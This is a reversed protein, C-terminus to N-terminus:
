DTWQYLTIKGYVPDALTSSQYTRVKRLHGELSVGQEAFGDVVHDTLYIKAHKYNAKDQLFVDFQFVRKHTFNADLYQMIRTEEWTYVVIAEEQKQLDYTLQYTAPLNNAYHYIHFGGVVAQVIIVILAYIRKLISDGSHFYNVWSYFLLIGVIPVIHRPKDVNQAFLAWLFYVGATILFWQPLNMKKRIVIFVILGTYLLLLWISQSALGTWIINYFILRITRHFFSDDETIAAGGWETFHGNIFSLALKLFSRWSEETMAVGLVWIFQFLLGAALYVVLRSARKHKKWDDYWLFLLAFAFPIYSLRIGLLIGFFFLPLIHTFWQGREHALQISWFYWWLVAIAAGESMPQSVTLSIFSATQIICMIILSLEAKCYRKLLLFIPVTASLITLINFVSLAKAPNEIFRHVAMGGLIFYPYGPFHPQMALLDYRNLALAFDVQDWSAAFPSAHTFAIFFLLSCATVGVFLIFHSLFRNNGLFHKVINEM